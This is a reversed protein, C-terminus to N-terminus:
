VLVLAMQTLLDFAILVLVWVSLSLVVLDGEEVVQRWM